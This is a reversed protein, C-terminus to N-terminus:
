LPDRLVPLTMCRPGGGGRALNIGPIGVFLRGAADMDVSGATFERASCIQYGAAAFADMTAVNCDYGLVKGPAFAFANAASLWQERERVVPNPGGCAVLELEVGANALAEVLGAAESITSSGSGADGPSGDAAPEMRMVLTRVRGAGTVYPEYVLATNTDVMTFIMDLHITSREQPLVAAIMTVPEMTAACFRRCLEDLAASSTRESIGVVLLGPRVVLVDGGELRVDTESRREECGDFLVPAAGNFVARMLMAEGTRVEHAMAGIVVSDGLVLSSDRMFYLNPLPPLQYDPGGLVSSLTDKPAPLGVTLAHVLDHPTELRRLDDPNMQPYVSALNAILSERADPRELAAVLLDTLEHVEAVRGLVAKVLRHEDSVVSIPIIDNYLVEQATRPTMSEIEAGPSHIVVSRLRGVESTIGVPGLRPTM